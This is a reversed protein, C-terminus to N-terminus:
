RSIDTFGTKLHNIVRAVPTSLSRPSLEKNRDLAKQNHIAFAVSMSPTQGQTADRGPMESKDSQRNFTALTSLSALSADYRLKAM